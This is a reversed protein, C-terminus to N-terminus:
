IVDRDAYELGPYKQKNTRVIFSCIKVIKEWESLPTLNYKDLGKQRFMSLFEEVDAEFNMKINM